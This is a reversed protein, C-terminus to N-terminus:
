AAAVLGADARGGRRRELGQEGVLSRWTGFALAHGIAAHARRKRAGRLGRGNLLLEATAEMAVARAEM